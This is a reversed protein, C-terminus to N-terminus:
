LLFVLFKCSEDTLNKNLSITDVTEYEISCHWCLQTKLNFKEEFM